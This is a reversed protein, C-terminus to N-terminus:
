LENKLVPNHAAFILHEVACIVQLFHLFFKTQNFPGPSFMSIISKSGEQGNNQLPCLGEAM